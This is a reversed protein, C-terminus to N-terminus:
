SDCDGNHKICAVTRPSLIIQDKMPITGILTSAAVPTYTYNISGVLLYTGKTKITSPVTFPDGDTLGSVNLGRSWAVTAAGSTPDIKVQTITLRANSLKYPAMIQQSASLVADLDADTVVSYQSTLDAIARTATTVKRYASIADSLQYSGIYLTILFPLCLAFEVLSVGRQDRALRAIM